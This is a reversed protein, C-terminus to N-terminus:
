ARHSNAGEAVDREENAIEGRRSVEIAVKEPERLGAGALIAADDEEGRARTVVIERALQRARRAGAGLGLAHRTEIMDRELDALRGGLERARPTVHHRLPERRVALVRVSEADAVRVAV